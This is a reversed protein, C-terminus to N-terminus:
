RLTLLLLSYQANNKYMDRTKNQDFKFIGLACTMDDNQLYLIKEVNM